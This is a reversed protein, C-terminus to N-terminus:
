QFGNIIKLSTDFIVAKAGSVQEWKEVPFNTIIKGGLSEFYAGVLKGYWPWDYETDAAAHIGVFGGGAQIFRNLELQQADNLVDGTTNLFVIVNYKELFKEKFVSADETTDVKFSNQKGLELLAEKGATISQHRFQDTKSFVLVSVYREKVFIFRYLGFLVLLLIGLIILFRKM